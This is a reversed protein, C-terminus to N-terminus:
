NFPYNLYFSTEYKHQFLIPTGNIINNSKIKIPKQKNFIKLYSVLSFYTQCFKLILGFFYLKFSIIDERKYKKTQFYVIAIYKIPSVQM